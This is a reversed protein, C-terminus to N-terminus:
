IVETIWITSFETATGRVRSTGTTRIVLGAKTNSSSGPQLQWDGSLTLYGLATPINGRTVYVQTDALTGNAGSFLAVSCSNGAAGSTDEIVISFQVRFKRLTLPASTNPLTLGSLTTINTLTSGSINQDAATVAYTPSIIKSDRVGVTFSSGNFSVDGYFASAGSFLSSSGVELARRLKTHGHVLLSDTRFQGINKDVNRVYFDNVDLTGGLTVGGATTTLADTSLTGTTTVNGSSDVRLLEVWTKSADTGSNRQVVFRDNVTDYLIRYKHRQTSNGFSIGTLIDQLVDGNTNVTSADSLARLRKIGQQLKILQERVNATSAASYYFLADPWSRIQETM